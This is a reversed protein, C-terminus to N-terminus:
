QGRFATIRIEIDTRPALGRIIGTRATRSDQSYEGYGFLIARRSGAERGSHFDERGENQWRMHDREITKRATSREFGASPRIGSSLGRWRQAAALYRDCRPHM